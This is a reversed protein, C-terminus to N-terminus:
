KKKNKPTKTKQKLLKKQEKWTEATCVADDFFFDLVSLLHKNTKM